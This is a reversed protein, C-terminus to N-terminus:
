RECPTKTCTGIEEAEQVGSRPALIQICFDYVAWAHMPCACVYTLARARTRDCACACVGVLVCSFCVCMGSM